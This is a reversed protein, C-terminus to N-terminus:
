KENKIKDFEKKILKEVWENLKLSHEKAYIKLETHLAEDIKMNKSKKM